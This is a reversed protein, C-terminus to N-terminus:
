TNFRKCLRFAVYIAGTHSKGFRLAFTLFLLAPLHWFFTGGAANRDNKKSGGLM